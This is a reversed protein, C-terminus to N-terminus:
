TGSSPKRIGLRRVVKDVNKVTLNKNFKVNVLKRLQSVTFTPSGDELLTTLIMFVHNRKEAMLLPQGIELCNRWHEVAQWFDKFFRSDNSEIAGISVRFFHDVVARDFRIEKDKRARAEVLSDFVGATYLDLFAVHGKGIDKRQKGQATPGYGPKIWGDPVVALVFESSFKEYDLGGPCQWNDKLHCAYRFWGLADCANIPPAVHVVTMGCRPASEAVKM